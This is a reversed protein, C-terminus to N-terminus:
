TVGMWSQSTHLNKLQIGMVLSKQASWFMLKSASTHYTKGCLFIGVSHMMMMFLAFLKKAMKMYQASVVSFFSHLVVVRALPPM